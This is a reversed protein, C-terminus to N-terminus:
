KAAIIYHHKGSAERILAIHSSRNPDYEIQEITAELDNPLKHSVIRYYRRAGGGRHRVTIKGQNNRGVAGKRIKLLSRVRPKKATIESTDRTTMGRRANSTPKYTIVAM